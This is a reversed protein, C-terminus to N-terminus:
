LLSLVIMESGNQMYDGLIGVFVLVEAGFEGLKWFWEWFDRGFGRLLIIVICHGGGLEWGGGEGGAGVRGGVVVVTLGTPGGIRARRGAEM